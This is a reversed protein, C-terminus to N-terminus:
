YDEGYYDTERYDDMAMELAEAAMGEYDPEPRERTVEHHDDHTECYVSWTEGDWTTADHEGAMTPCDAVEGLVVDVTDEDPEPPDYYTDPLSFNQMINGKGNPHIGLIVPGSRM